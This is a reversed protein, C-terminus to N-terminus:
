TSPSYRLVCIDSHSIRSKRRLKEQWSGPLFEPSHRLSGMHSFLLLDEVPDKTLLHTIRFLSQHLIFVLTEPYFIPTRWTSSVTSSTFKSLCCSKHAKPSLPGVGTNIHPLCFCTIEATSNFRAEAQQALGWRSAGSSKRRNLEGYTFSLSQLFDTGWRGSMKQVENRFCSLAWIWFLLHDSDINHTSSGHVM